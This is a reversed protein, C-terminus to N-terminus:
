ALDISNQSKLLSKGLRGILFPLLHGPKSGTIQKHSAIDTLSFVGLPSLHFANLM